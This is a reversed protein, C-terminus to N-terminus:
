SQEVRETRERPRRIDYGPVSTRGTSAAYTYVQDSDEVHGVAIDGKLETINMVSGNRMEYRGPKCIIM